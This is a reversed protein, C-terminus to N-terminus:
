RERERRCFHQVGSNRTNRYRDHLIDNVLYTNVRSISVAITQVQVRRLFAIAVPIGYLFEVLRTEWFNHRINKTNQLAM